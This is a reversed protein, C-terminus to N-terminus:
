SGADLEGNSFPARKLKRKDNNKTINTFPHSSYDSKKSIVVLFATTMNMM